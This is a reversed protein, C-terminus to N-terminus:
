EMEMQNAQDWVLRELGHHDAGAEMLLAATDALIMGHRQMEVAATAVLKRPLRFDLENM